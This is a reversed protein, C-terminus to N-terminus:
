HLLENPADPVIMGDLDGGIALPITLAFHANIRHLEEELRRNIPLDCHSSSSVVLIQTIRPELVLRGSWVRREKGAAVHEQKLMLRVAVLRHGPFPPVILYAYAWLTGTPGSPISRM